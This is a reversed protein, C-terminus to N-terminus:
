TDENARARVEFRHVSEDAFMLDLWNNVAREVKRLRVSREDVHFVAVMEAFNDNPM